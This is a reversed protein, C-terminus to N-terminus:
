YVDRDVDEFIFYYPDLLDWYSYLSFVFKTSLLLLWAAIVFKDRAKTHLGQKISAVLVVAEAWNFYLAIRALYPFFSLSFVSIVFGFSILVYLATSISPAYKRSVITRILYISIFFSSVREAIRLYIRGGESEYANELIYTGIRSFVLNFISDRLLFVTLILVLIALAFSILRRKGRLFILVPLVLLASLHIMSAAFIQMLLTLLKPKRSAVYASFALAIISIAIQQRVPYWFQSQLILLGALFMVPPLQLYRATRYVFYAIMLSQLVLLVSFSETITSVIKIFYLYGPEFTTGLDDSSSNRSLNFAEEHPFWDTGTKWRLGTVFVYVSFCVLTMGVSM